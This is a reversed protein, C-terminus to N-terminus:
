AHQAEVNNRKFFGAIRDRTRAIAKTNISAVFGAVANGALMSTYITLLVGLMWVCFALFMSGTAILVLGMAALAFWGGVYGVGFATVMGLVWAAIRQKPGPEGSEAMYEVYASHIREHMREWAAAAPNPQATPTDVVEDAVEVKATPQQAAAAASKAKTEAKARTRKAAPQQAPQAFRSTAM